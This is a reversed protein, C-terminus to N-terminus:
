ALEKAVCSQSQNRRMTGLMLNVCQALIALKRYKLPKSGPITRSMESQNAAAEKWRKAGKKEFYEKNRLTFSKVSVDRRKGDQPFGFPSIRPL